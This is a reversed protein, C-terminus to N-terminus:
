MYRQYTEPETVRKKKRLYLRKGSFWGGAEIYMFCAHPNTQLNEYTKREAAIFAITDDDTFYPGSYIAMTVEGKSNATALIGRGPTREFYERLGM